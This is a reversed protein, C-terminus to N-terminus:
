KITSGHCATVIQAIAHMSRCFHSPDDYALRVVVPNFSFYKLNNKHTSSTARKGTMWMIVYQARRFGTKWYTWPALWQTDCWDLINKTIIANWNIYSFSDSTADSEVHQKTSNTPFVQFQKLNLKLYFFFTSSCESCIWRSDTDIYYWSNINM